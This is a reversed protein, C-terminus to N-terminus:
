RTHIELGLANAIKEWGILKFQTSNDYEFGNIPDESAPGEAAGNQAV